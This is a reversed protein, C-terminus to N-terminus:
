SQLAILSAAPSLIPKRRYPHLVLLDADGSILLDADAALLVDLVHNDDPDRCDVVHDTPTVRASVASLGDVFRRLQEPTRYRDFKPKGLRTVLEAFTVDSFLLTARRLALCQLVQAATGGPSLLASILVNTDVVVREVRM